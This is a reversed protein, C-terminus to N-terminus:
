SKAEEAPAADAAPAEAVEEAAPAEEVKRPNPKKIKGADALFNVKDDGSLYGGGRKKVCWKGSRKQVLQLDAAKKM